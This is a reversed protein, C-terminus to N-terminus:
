RPSSHPEPPGGPNTGDHDHAHKATLDADTKQRAAALTADLTTLFADRGTHQFLEFLKPLAAELVAGFEQALAPAGVAALFAGIM